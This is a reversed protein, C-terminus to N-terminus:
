GPQGTLQAIATMQAAAHRRQNFAGMDIRIGHKLAMAVAFTPAGDEPKHEIVELDVIESFGFHQVMRGSALSQTRYVIQRDARSFTVSQRELRYAMRLCFLGFAWFAALGLLSAAVGGAQAANAPWGTQRVLVVFVFSSVLATVGAAAIFARLPVTSGEQYVLGDPATKFIFAM